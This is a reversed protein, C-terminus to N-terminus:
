VKLSKKMPTVEINEKVLAARIKQVFELAKENDGHVCITDGQLIIDEGTLAKIRGKKIMGIVRKVALDEDEIMAGKESRPVLSGDRSYARDAFVERAAKLGVEEAAEVLYSGSLGVLVLEPDVAKVAEAIARSLKRDKAAMNYLAGHPKVHQMTTGAAEVFAKLAGIQYLVYAKAEEPSIRMIRRGFGMLDPLGPHAGIEVGLKVALEVTKNMIVPDGAHWGCAINVSSVYQLVEEDMGLRYEGFSEGVDSNVDIKHMPIRGKLKEMKELKANPKIRNTKEGASMDM